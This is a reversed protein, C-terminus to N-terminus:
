EGPRAKPRARATLGPEGSFRAASRYRHYSCPVGPGQNQDGDRMSPKRLLGSRHDSRGYEYPLPARPCRGPAKCATGTRAEGPGAAVPRAWLRRTPQQAALPRRAPGMLAAWSRTVAPALGPLSRPSAARAARHPALGMSADEPLVVLCRSLRPPSRAALLARHVMAWMRMIESGRM